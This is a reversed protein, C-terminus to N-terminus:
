KKRGPFLMAPKLHSQKLFTSSPVTPTLSGRVNTNRNIPRWVKFNFSKYGLSEAMPSHYTIVEMKPIMPQFSFNQNTTSLSSCIRPSKARIGSLSSGPKISPLNVNPLKNARLINRKNIGRTRSRKSSAPKKVPIESGLLLNENYEIPLSIMSYRWIFPTPFSQPNLSNTRQPKKNQNLIKKFKRAKAIIKVPSLKNKTWFFKVKLLSLNKRIAELRRKIILPQKVQWLKFRASIHVLYDFVRFREAKKDYCYKIYLDIIGLLKWRLKFRIYHSEIVRVPGKFYKPDIWMSYIMQHMKHVTQEVNKKQHNDFLKQVRKRTLYGRIHKQIIIAKTNLNMQWTNYEKLNEAILSKLKHEAEREAKVKERRKILEKLINEKKRYEPSKSGILSRIRSAKFLSNDQFLQLNKRTFEFSRAHPSSKSSINM